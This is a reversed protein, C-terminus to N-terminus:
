VALTSWNTLGTNMRQTQPFNAWSVIAWKTGSEIPLSQHTFLHNSPFFVLDGAKPIYTYNLHDFRLSGGVYDDNLYILLSVDRDRIRYWRKTKPDFDEGDAHSVYKGGPPYRLVYPPEFMAPRTQYAPAVQELLAKRFMAQIVATRKTMDVAQTVRRPDRRQVIKSPTSKKDDTVTLWKRRQKNGHRILPNREAPSLFGPFINLMSPPRRDIAESGCCNGFAAKRGCYCDADPALRLSKVYSFSQHDTM